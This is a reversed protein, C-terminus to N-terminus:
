NLIFPFLEALGLRHSALHITPSPGAFINAILALNVEARYAVCAYVRGLGLAGAASGDEHVVLVRDGGLHGGGHGKCGLTNVDGQLVAAWGAAAGNLLQVLVTWVATCKEDLLPILVYM